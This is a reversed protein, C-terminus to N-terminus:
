TETTTKNVEKETNIGGSNSNELEIKKAEAIGDEISKQVDTLSVGAPYLDKIVAFTACSCLELPNLDSGTECKLDNCHSM